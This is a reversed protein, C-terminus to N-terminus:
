AGVAVLESRPARRLSGILGLYRALHKEESLEDAAYAAGCAGLRDGLLRNRGLLRLAEALEEDRRYVIGGGSERALDAIAGIDHAIVPRGLALAEAAVYGFTEPSLSPVAM